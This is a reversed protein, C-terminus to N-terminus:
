LLAKLVLIMMYGFGITAPVFGLCVMFKGIFTDSNGAQPNIAKVVFGLPNYIVGICFIVIIAKPIELNLHIVIFYMLASLGTM